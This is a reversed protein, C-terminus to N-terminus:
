RESRLEPFVKLIYYVINHLGNNEAAVGIAYFFDTTTNEPHGLKTRMFYEDLNAIFVEFNYNTKKGIKFIEDLLDDRREDFASILLDLYLNHVLVPPDVEPNESYIKILQKLLTENNNKLLEFGIDSMTLFSGNPNNVRLWEPSIKIISDQLSKSTNHLNLLTPLDKSLL